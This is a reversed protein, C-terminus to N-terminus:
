DMCGSVKEVHLWREQSDVLIGRTPDCRQIKYALLDGLFMYSTTALLAVLCAMFGHVM